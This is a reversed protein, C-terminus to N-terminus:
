DRLTVDVAGQILYTMRRLNADSLVKGEPVALTGNNRYLPGQFPDLEGAIMKSRAREVDAVAARPVWTAIPDVDFVGAELGKWWGRLEPAWTGKVIAEITPILYAEWKYVMSTAVARPAEESM